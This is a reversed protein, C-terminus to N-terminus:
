AALEVARTCAQRTAQVAEALVPTLVEYLAELEGSLFLARMARRQIKGSTTRRVSGQRLLLVGAAQVGFERLVTAGLARALERLVDPEPLGRVEYSVVLAEGGEVPVGFVAGLRSALEPHQERLQFEIDQPYLNRGHAIIMEKLRGGIYIEGEHLLGLDGTRLYGGDGNAAVAGFTTRTADPNGWYGPSVSDGRLWIEGFRDAALPTCTDPDVVLVDHGVAVGCSVLERVPRGPRAAEFRGEALAAADADLLRAGRKGKGSVFVTAEAMGYCPCFASDSFGAPAFRRAFAALTAAQVPESGNTAFQWSSLDLRKVQEDTIRRTCLEFAFNPAASYNIRYRDIMRLWAFPRTVFTTPTMLLCTSGLFLAPLLQAMLGMDHFLPIWGGFRTHRDFGLAQRYSDVNHLLNGHTIMVGKPDGTSGSTYQLLTVSAATLVPARWLAADADLARTDLCPLEGFDEERAWTRVMDLHAADTFIAAVDADAAIARIRQREHRYQGPLPAPVAIMGAYLCGMFAAAFDTGVPFLLLVRAGAPAHRQLWAAIRRAELDLQRYTLTVREDREVDRVLSVAEQGPRAEAHHRMLHLVTPSNHLDIL